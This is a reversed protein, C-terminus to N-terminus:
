IAPNAQGSVHQSFIFLVYKSFKKPEDKSFSDTTLVARLRCGQATHMLDPVITKLISM